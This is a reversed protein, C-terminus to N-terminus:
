TKELYHSRILTIEDALNPLAVGMTEEFLQCDMRMDSPRRASLSTMDVCRTRHLTHTPLGLAAAFAFAFDAKSMGNNSGLNFVGTPRRIVLKALMNCLTVISLPSFLVDEFVSLPEGRKLGRYLWDSFSSRGSCHSPGFFNTRVIVSPVSSAALESAFKSFAYTNRITIADEKHPGLGDYLQDTSIHLLHCNIRHKRLSQCLNNFGVFNIQYALNPDLECTDVNTLAALHVICDPYAEFLLNETANRDCLDMNIDAQAKYGHRIVTHGQAALVPVLATGLLGTAGTVLIRSM